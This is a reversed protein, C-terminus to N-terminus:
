EPMFGATQERNFGPSAKKRDHELTAGFKRSPNPDIASDLM